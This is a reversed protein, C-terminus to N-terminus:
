SKEIYGFVEHANLCPCAKPTTAPLDRHGVIKASPFMKNLITLLDTLRETQTPTRTDCPLGNEDLGGEYCIGISCHNYLVAHAGVELLMRHQTMSGDRRIYFHYCTTSLCLFYCLILPLIILHRKDYPM